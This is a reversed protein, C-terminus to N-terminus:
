KRIYVRQSHNPRDVALKDCHLVSIWNLLNALLAKVDRRYPKPENLLCDHLESAIAGFYLEHNPQRKILEYLWCFCKSKQLADKNSSLGTNWKSSGLFLLDEDRANAPDSCTPFDEAFLLSYDPKFMDYIEEPWDGLVDAREKDRLASKMISYITDNMEVAGKLLVKLGAVDKEELLCTTAMEYNGQGGIMMGSQTANASGIICRVNDFVYTKAHLDLRFFLKWGHEKCYPYLEIDSAGCEIDDKRFRVLLVKEINSHLHGEFLQILPLKCYASIIFVTENSKSLESCIQKIIDERILISM